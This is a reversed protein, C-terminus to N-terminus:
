SKKTKRVSRAGDRYPQLEVKVGNKELIAKTGPAVRHAVLSKPFSKPAKTGFISVKARPNSAKSTPILDRLTLAQGAYASLETINVKIQLPKLPSNFGIKPSRRQIPMQGGEFSPHVQGGTRAKQGKHGKGATKGLGSGIGKGKRKPAHNSGKPAKINNLKFM